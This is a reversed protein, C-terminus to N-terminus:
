SYYLCESPEPMNAAEEQKECQKLGATHDVQKAILQVEEKPALCERALM